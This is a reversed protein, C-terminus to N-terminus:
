LQHRFWDKCLFTLVNLSGIGANVLKTLTTVNVTGGDCRINGVDLAGVFTSVGNNTDNIPGEISIHSLNSPFTLVLLRSTM